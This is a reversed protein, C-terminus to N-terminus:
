VLPTSGDKLVTRTWHCGEVSAFQMPTMNGLRVHGTAQDIQMFGSQRRNELRVGNRGFELGVSISIYVRREFDPDPLQSLWWRPFGLMGNGSDGDDLFRWETELRKEGTRDETAAKSAAGLDALRRAAVNATGTDTVPAAEATEAPRDPWRWGFRGGSADVHPVQVRAVCAPEGGDPFVSLNVFAPGGHPSPHVSTVVAPRELVSGRNGVERIIVIRGLSPQQSM